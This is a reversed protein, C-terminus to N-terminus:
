IEIWELRVAKYIGAGVYEVFLAYQECKLFYWALSGFTRYCTRGRWSKYETCDPQAQIEELLSKM